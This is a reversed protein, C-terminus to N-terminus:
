IYFFTRDLMWFLANKKALSHTMNLTTEFSYKQNSKQFFKNNFNVINLLTNPTKRKM